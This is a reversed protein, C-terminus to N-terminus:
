STFEEVTVGNWPKLDIKLIKIKLLKEFEQIIEPETYVRNQDKTNILWHAYTIKPNPEIGELPEWEKIVMKYRTYSIPKGSLVRKFASYYMKTM